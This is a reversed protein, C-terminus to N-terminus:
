AEPLLAPGWRHLVNETRPMDGADVLLEVLIPSSHSALYSIAQPADMTSAATAWEPSPPQYGSTHLFALRQHESIHIQHLPIAEKKLAAIAQDAFERTRFQARVIPM